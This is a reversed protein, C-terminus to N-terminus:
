GIVGGPVLWNILAIAMGYLILGIVANRIITMAQEVQGKNDRASAYLIAAYAISGVAAIGIIVTVVFIAIKILAGISGLGASEECRIFQTKSDGCTGTESAQGSPGTSTSTSTSTSTTPTVALTVPAGVITLVALAAVIGTKIIHIKRKM